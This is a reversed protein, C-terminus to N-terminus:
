SNVQLYDWDLDGFGKALDKEQLDHQHTLDLGRRNGYNYLWHFIEHRGYHVFAQENPYLFSNDGEDCTITAQMPNTLPYYWGLEQKTSNLVSGEWQHKTIAWLVCQTNPFRLPMVQTDFYYKAIVKYQEPTFVGPVVEYWWNKLSKYTYLPFIKCEIKGGSNLNFWDALAQLEKGQWQYDYNMLVTINLKIPLPPLKFKFPDRIVGYIKESYKQVIRNHHVRKDLNFNSETAYLSGGVMNNIVFVHGHGQGLWNVGDSTIVVDGIRFDGKLQSAQIGYNKVAQKKQSYSDGVSPFNILNHAFEACEGGHSNEPYLNSLLPRLNM